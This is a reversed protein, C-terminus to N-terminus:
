ALRQAPIEVIQAPDRRFAAEVRALAARQDEDKVVHYREYVSDTLHGTISKAVKRPTSANELNRVCSRRFDHFLMTARKTGNADTVCLGAAVCAASWAKRFDRVSRGARHFVLDTVMPGTPTMVTRALWRREIVTRVTEPMVVTSPEKTKNFEARRIVTGADRNVDAWRLSLVQERRWGMLYAFWCVDDIPAPLAWVLALFDTYEVFGERAYSEPYMEVAPVANPSVLKDKGKTALKYRRRIVALERNITAKTRGAALREGKYREIMRETVDAARTTDFFARLPKLRHALTHGSRNDRAAYDAVVADFLLGMTVKAATPKIFEDRAIEDRRQRLLKVAKREQDTHASERHQVNNKWYEIHWTRGRLFISGLGPLHKRTTTTDM